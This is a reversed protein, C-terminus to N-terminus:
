HYLTVNGVHIDLTRAGEGAELVVRHRLTGPRTRKHWIGVSDASGGVGMAEAAVESGEAQVNGETGSPAGSHGASGGTEQANGARLVATTPIASVKKLEEAHPLVFLSKDFYTNETLRPDTHRLHAQRSRSKVGQSALMTNLSMRLAHLDAFGIEKNGYDIEAFALDLKLVDMDPVLALVRDNPRAGAPRYALLEAVLQAHMPLVDARESKTVEERLQIYPVAVDLKVDRWELAQLESRRLGTWIALLYAMRRDIGKQRARELVAPRVKAGSQGKKPGRRITLLDAVPREATADLWRALEEVTLGRRPDVKDQKKEDVRCLSALPDFEIKRRDAAWATFYSMKRRKTGDLRAQKIPSKKPGDVSPM